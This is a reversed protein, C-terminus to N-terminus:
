VSGEPRNDPPYGSWSHATEHIFERAMHLAVYTGYRTSLLNYIGLDSHGKITASGWKVSGRYLDRVVPRFGPNTVEVFMCLRMSDVTVVHLTPSTIVGPFPTPLARPLRGRAGAPLGGLGYPPGRHSGFYIGM